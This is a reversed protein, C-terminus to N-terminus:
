PNWGAKVLGDIMREVISSNPIFLKKFDEKTRLSPREKLYLNLMKKAKDSELLGLIIAKYGILLIANPTALIAKDISLLAENLKNDGIGIYALALGAYTWSLDNDIPSLKLREKFSNEADSYEGLNVQSYGLREFALPFNLNIDICIRFYFCFPTIFLQNFPTFLRYVAM